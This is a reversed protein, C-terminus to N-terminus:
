AFRALLVGLWYLGFVPVAVITQNVPDPSPSIVAGAIFAIVIAFKWWKVMRQCSILRIKALLFMFIPLEFTIGAWFMIKSTFTIFKNTDLILNIQNNDFGSLFKIAPPEVIFYAFLIGGVFSIVVFPIFFWVSRRIAKLMKVEEEYGDQGPQREPELAPALFAMLQYVIFPSSLLIGCYLSLKIGILFPEGIEFANLTLKAPKLAEFVSILNQQQTFGLVSAVVIVLVTAILRNRLEALHEFFTMQGGPTPQRKPAKQKQKKAKKLGTGEISRM